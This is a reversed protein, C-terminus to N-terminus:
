PAKDEETPAPAQTKDSSPPRRARTLLEITVDLRRGLRELGEAWDVCDIEIVGTSCNQALSVLLGLDSRAAILVGLAPEDDDLTLGYLLLDSLTAKSLDHLPAVNEDPEPNTEM